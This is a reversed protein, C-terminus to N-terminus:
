CSVMIGFTPNEKIMLCRADNYGTAGLEIGCDQFEQENKETSNTTTTAAHARCLNCSGPDRTEELSGIRM